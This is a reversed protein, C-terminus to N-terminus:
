AMFFPLHLSISRCFCLINKASNPELLWHMIGYSLPYLPLNRIQLDCTRGRDPDGLKGTLRVLVTFNVPFKTQIDSWYHHLGQEIGDRFAPSSSICVWEPQYPDCVQPFLVSHLPTRSSNICRLSLYPIFLLGLLRGRM